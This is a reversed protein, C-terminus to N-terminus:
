FSFSSGFPPAIQTSSCDYVAISYINTEETINWIGFMTGPTITYNTLWFTATLSGNLDVQALYGTVIGSSLFLNPFKSGYATGNLGLFPGGATQAVITGNAGSFVGNTPSIALNLFAMKNTCPTSCGEPPATV